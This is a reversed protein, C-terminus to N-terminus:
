QEDNWKDCGGWIQVRVTPVQFLYCLHQSHQGFDDQFSISGVVFITKRAHVIDDIDQASLLPGRATMFEAAQNVLLHGTMRMTKLYDNFQVIAAGESVGSTDQQLSTRSYPIVNVAPGSGVNHILVNFM